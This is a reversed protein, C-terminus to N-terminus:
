RTAACEGGCPVDVKRLHGGSGVRVDHRGCRVALPSGGPGAFRGDVFIRHGLASGDTLILGTTPPLSSSARVPGSAPLTAAHSRPVVDAPPPPVASVSTPPERSESAQSLATSRRMELESAIPKARKFRLVFVTVMAFAGVLFLLTAIVRRRRASPGRRSRRVGDATSAAPGPSGQGLPPGRRRQVLTTSEGGVNPYPATSTENDFDLVAAARHQFMSTPPPPHSSSAIPAPTAPASFYAPGPGPPRTTIRGAGEPDVPLARITATTEDLATASDDFLSAVFPEANDTSTRERDVGSPERRRFRELASVLRLRSADVDGIFERLLTVMEEATVNRYDGDVALGRDIATAIAGSFSPSLSTLPLFSPTSMGHLSAARAGPSDESSPFAPKGIILERMILCAAYIDTRVTSADGRAQEPALYGMVGRVAGPETGGSIGALRAVGFDAVKVYGDWPVLVNSPCLARHIIPAFEKTLPDRASHAASLAQFIRYGVYAVLREGLPERNASTTNIVEALTPGEVHELVLTYQGFDDEIFDFLRVVAPHSLRAYATAERAIRARAASVDDAGELSVRKLVVPRAFGLPGHAIALSVHSTRSSALHRVFAYRTATSRWHPAVAPQVDVPM